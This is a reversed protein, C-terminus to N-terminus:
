DLFVLFPEVDVEEDDGFPRLALRLTARINATAMIQAQEPTVELTITGAGPNPRNRETEVEAIAGVRTTEGSPEEVEATLDQAVAIIRVNQLMTFALSAGERDVILPVTPREGTFAEVIEPVDAGVPVGIYGIIDVRDNPSLNGGAIVVESVTISIARMGESVAFPLGQGTTTSVASPVIIEGAAIDVATVRNLLQSEATFAEPDVDAVNYTQVELLDPTLRTRAPIDESAAVALRTAAVTRTVTETGDDGGTLVIAVLIAAVAGLALGIFLVM